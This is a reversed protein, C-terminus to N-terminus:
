FRVYIQIKLAKTSYYLLHTRGTYYSALAGHHGM